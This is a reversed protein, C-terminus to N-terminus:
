PGGRLQQSHDEYVEIGVLDLLTSLVVDVGEQGTVDVWGSTNLDTLAHVVVRVEGAPGDGHSTDEEVADDLVVITLVRAEREAHTM